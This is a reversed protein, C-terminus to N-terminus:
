GAAAPRLPGGAGPSGGVGPPGGPRPPSGSGLAAPPRTLASELEAVTPANGRLTVAHGPAAIAARILDIHRELAAPSTELAAAASCVGKILMMVDMAGVEPRIVGARKAHALLDELLAVFDAHAARIEPNALFEESVAEFLARDSQQRSVVEEMFDFVIEGGGGATLRARGDAIAVRMREVVIAAILDEKTPFNRFLTGRGVGARTAIEGVGADLGHEAFVEAAAELLRRRNRAADSRQPRESTAGMADM